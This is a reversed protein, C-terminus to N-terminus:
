HGAGPPALRIELIEDLTERIQRITLHRGEYPIELHRCVLRWVGPERESQLDMVTTYPEAALGDGTGFGVVSISRTGPYPAEDTQTVRTITFEDPEITRNRTSVGRMELTCNPYYPDVGQTAVRAGQMAIGRQGAPVSLAQHLVLLSGPPATFFPSDEDRTAPGQCASLMVALLVPIRIDPLFIKM